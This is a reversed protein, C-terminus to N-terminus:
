LYLSGSIPYTSPSFFINLSLARLNLFIVNKCEMVVKSLEAKLVAVLQAVFNILGMKSVLFIDIM